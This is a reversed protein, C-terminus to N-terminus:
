IPLLNAEATSRTTVVSYTTYVRDEIELRVLRSESGHKLACVFLQRYKCLFRVTFSQEKISLTLVTHREEKASTLIQDRKTM